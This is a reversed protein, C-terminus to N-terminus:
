AEIVEIDREGILTEGAATVVTCTVTHCGVSDATIVVSVYTSKVIDSSDITIGTEGTVTKSSLTDSGSTSYDRCTWEVSGDNMTAAITTTFKPARDATKGASTCEYVFAGVTVFEGSSYQYNRRCPIELDALFDFVLTLTEGVKMTTKTATM